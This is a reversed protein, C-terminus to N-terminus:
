HSTAFLLLIVRVKWTRGMKVMDLHLARLEERQEEERELMADRVVKRLFEQAETSTPASLRPAPSRMPSLQMMGPAGRIVSSDKTQRPPTSTGHYGDPTLFGPSEYAVDHKVPTGVNRESVIGKPEAYHQRSHPAKPPTSLDVAISPAIGITTDAMEMTEIDSLAKSHRGQYAM